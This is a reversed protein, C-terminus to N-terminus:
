YGQGAETKYPLSVSDLDPAPADVYYCVEVLVVAQSDADVISLAGNHAITVTAGGSEASVTQFGDFPTATGNVPFEGAAANCQAELGGTTLGDVKVYSTGSTSLNQASISTRYVTAGAPVAVPKNLRPKDDQRLDPSQVEPTLTGSGSVDASVIAAGIVQYFQVGPVAEVGQDRYANLREVYNGPFIISM